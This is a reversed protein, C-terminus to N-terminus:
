FANNAILRAYYMDDDEDETRPTITFSPYNIFSVVRVTGIYVHDEGTTRQWRIPATVGGDEYFQDIAEALRRNKAEELDALYTDKMVLFDRVTVRSTEAIPTEETENTTANDADKKKTSM